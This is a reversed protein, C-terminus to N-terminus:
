VICLNPPDTLWHNLAECFQSLISQATTSDFLACNYYLSTTLQDDMSQWIDLTLDFKAQTDQETLVQAEVEGLTFHERHPNKGLFNFLIQFIPHVHEQRPPNLTDVLHSFPFAQHAMAAMITDHQGAIFQALTQQRNVQSRIAVPNVFYGVMEQTARQQRNAMPSGIVVDEERSFLSVVLAFMSQLVVFESTGHRKAFEALQQGVTQPLVVRAMGAAPSQAENLSLHSRPKDLAIGHLAPLSELQTQWYQSMAQAQESGEWHQKQWRAYDGYGAREGPEVAHQYFESLQQCLLNVSWDDVAIHHFVCCLLHRQESVSILCANVMLASAPTLGRGLEARVQAIRQSQQAEDLQSLEIHQLPLQATDALQPQLQGDEDMVLRTRLIPNHALWLDLAAQLRPVELPGSLSLTLPVLYSHQGNEELGEHQSALWMQQQAFSVVPGAAADPQMSIAPLPNAEKALSATDLEIYNALDVITPHTLLTQFELDVMLQESIAGLIRLGILSHGGLAFFHAACSLAEEPLEFAQAWIKRLQTQLPSQPEVIESAVTEPLRHDRLARRNVKGNPLLPLESLAVFQNPVMHGPLRSAAFESLEEGTPPEGQAVYFAVLQQSQGRVVDVVAISRIQDHRALQSDIEGLEVRFGRVKVQEDARGLFYFEGDPGQRVLDGSRYWRMGRYQIFKSHNEAERNLYGSSLCPGALLLEGVAGPPQEHGESDVVLAIRPGCLKGIPISARSLDAPIVQHWTSTIAAETPGYANFLRCRSFLALEEWRRVIQPNLTEGGLVLTHLRTQQWFAMENAQESLLEAVLAPPLDTCTIQHQLLYDTLEQHRWLREGKIHVAAGACLGVWIQELATDVNLSAFSLVADQDSLALHESMAHIHAAFAEFSIPVGKPLGTSGSTYIIYASLSTDIEPPHWVKSHTQAMLADYRYCKVGDRVGKHENTADTLVCKLDADTMIHALRQAPYGPDLPVFTAGLRWLALQAVLAAVSGPLMVGVRTGPDVQENLQAALHCSRTVLTRYDIQEDSDCVALARPAHESLQDLLDVISQPAQAVPPSLTEHYYALASLSQSPDIAVETVVFTLWDALTEVTQRDIQQADYFWELHTDSAMNLLLTFSMNEMGAKASEAVLFVPLLADTNETVGTPMPLAGTKQTCVYDHWQQVTMMPDLHLDCVQETNSASNADANDVYRMRAPSMQYYRAYVLAFCSFLMQAKDTNLRTAAQTVTAADLSSQALSTIEKAMGPNARDVIVTDRGTNNYKYFETCLPKCKNDHLGTHIQTVRNISDTIPWVMTASLTM